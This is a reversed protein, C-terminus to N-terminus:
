YNMDTTIFAGVNEELVTTRGWLVLVARQSGLCDLPFLLTESAVGAFAGELRSSGLAIGKCPKFFIHFFHHTHNDVFDDTCLNMCVHCLYICFYSNM